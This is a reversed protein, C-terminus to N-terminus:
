GGRVVEGLAGIADTLQADTLYPAPGFRLATGRFDTRVGRALLEAHLRGAEPAELSLFGARQELAVGDDISVVAPDLDLGRFADALRGVQHQSIARLREPTLGQEAFFDLVAAGRYHSTPDFTSGAFRAPGAGYRVEGPTKAETLEGFEAFWGTVVPRHDSGEPVRLVCNGEGLQLYKYGGGIVFARGMGDLSFPVAGLSHYADVLLEAGHRVCADHVATLNPVILGSSYFVSSM